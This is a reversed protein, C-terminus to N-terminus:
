RARHARDRLRQNRYAVVDETEFEARHDRLFRDTFPTRFEIIGPMPTSIIGKKALTGRISSIDRANVGIARAVDGMRQPGPGLDALAIAIATERPSLRSLPRAYLSTEFRTRVITVSRDVASQTITRASKADWAASAYAQIFFPYGASEEALAYLADEDITAGEDRIPERIAEITEDRSLFRLDFTNWRSVYTRMRDLLDRTDHLGAGAFLVPHKSQASEHVFIALAQMSALDADQMEDVTIVLYRKAATAADHLSTLMATLSAQDVETPPADESASLALAGAGNPLEYSVIPLARAASKIIKAARDPLSEASAHIQDFKERLRDALTFNTRTELAISLAKVGAHARLDGLLVTKGMGRQGIFIAPTPPELIEARRTAERIAALEQDRGVIRTPFAGPAPNFPNKM